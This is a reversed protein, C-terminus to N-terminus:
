QEENQQSIRIKLFRKIEEEAVQFRFQVEFQLNLFFEKVSPLLICGNLLQKVISQHQLLDLSCQNQHIYEKVNLM